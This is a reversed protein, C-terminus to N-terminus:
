KLEQNIREEYVKVNTMLRTIESQNMLMQTETQNVINTLREVEKKIEKESEYAEKTGPTILYSESKSIEIKVGELQIELVRQSHVLLEIKKIMENREERLSVIKQENNMEVGDEYPVCMIGNSILIHAQSALRFKTLLENIGADDDIKFSKVKLM